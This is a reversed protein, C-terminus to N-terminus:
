RLFVLATKQEPKDKPSVRVVFRNLSEYGLQVDPDNNKEQAVDKSVPENASVAAKPKQGRMMAALSDPTIIAEIMPGMFASALTAGFGALPNSDNAGAKANLSASFSAALSGRLAPYNVYSSLTAADRKDAADKMNKVALYPSAVYWAVAALLTVGVFAKIIKAM